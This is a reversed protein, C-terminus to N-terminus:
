KSLRANLLVRWQAALTKWETDYTLHFLSICDGIFETPAESPFPIAKPSNQAFLVEICNVLNGVSMEPANLILDRVVKHRAEWDHKSIGGIIGTATPMTATLKLKEADASQMAEAFQAYNLLDDYNDGHFTNTARVQKMAALMLAALFGPIPHELTIHYHNQILATFALGLNRHCQDFPGYTEQRQLFITKQEPSGLKDHMAKQSDSLDAYALM